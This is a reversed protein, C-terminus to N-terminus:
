TRTSFGSANVTRTDFWPQSKLWVSHTNLIHNLGDSTDRDRWFEPLLELLNTLNDKGNSRGILEVLGCWALNNGGNARVVLWERFGNLLEGQTATDYGQLFGSLSDFNVSPVFM